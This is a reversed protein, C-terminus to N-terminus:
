LAQAMAFLSNARLVHHTADLSKWFGTSEIGLLVPAYLHFLQSIRNRIYILRIILSWPL